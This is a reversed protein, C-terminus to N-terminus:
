LPLISVSGHGSTARLSFTAGVTIAYSGGGGAGPSLSDTGAGGSYGGGGGGADTGGGGGGGFGGRTDTGCGEDPSRVGGAGGRTFSSGGDALANDGDGTLGGGGGGESAAGGAGGTGGDILDASVGDPGLNANVGPAPDVEYGTAGGGGGAVVLAVDAGRVVFSGGGGSAGCGDDGFPADLPAEGVLISLVEGPTVSVDAEVHAGLGGPELGMMTIAGGGSAGDAVVRIVTTGVPVTFTEIAGSFSFVTPSRPADQGADPPSLADTGADPAVPADFSADQGADQGADPAADQGADRTPSPADIGVDIPDYGIRGCGIALGVLSATLGVLRV